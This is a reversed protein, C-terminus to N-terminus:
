FISKLLFPQLGTKTRLTGFTRVTEETMATEETKVMDLTEDTLGFVSPSVDLNQVFVVIRKM